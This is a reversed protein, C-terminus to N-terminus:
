LISPASAAYKDGCVMNIYARVEVSYVPSIRSARAYDNYLDACEVKSIRM